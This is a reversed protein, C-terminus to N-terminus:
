HFGNRRAADEVLELLARQVRGRHKAVAPDLFPRTKQSVWRDRHGFVPHRFQGSGTIGEYPRAHPAKKSSVRISVGRRTNSLRIAAPIRTSWSANARAAAVMPEAAERIKPRLEKRVDRSMNRLERSAQALQRSFDDAM